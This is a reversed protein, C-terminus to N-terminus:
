AVDRESDKMSRLADLIDGASIVGQLRCDEDVVLAYEHKGYSILAAAVSLLSDEPRVTLPKPDMVEAVPKEALERYHQGLIGIDPAYPVSDLDGSTIYDPVIREMVSFTSIVGAVRGDEGLAPLMRLSAKRMRELVRGIPEDVRCTKPNRTMIKRAHM